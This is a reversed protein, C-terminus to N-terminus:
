RGRCRRARARVRASGGSTASGWVHSACVKWGEGVRHEPPRSAPSSGTTQHHDPPAHRQPRDHRHRHRVQSTPAIENIRSCRFAVCCTRTNLLDTVNHRTISHFRGLSSCQPAGSFWVLERRTVAMVSSVIIYPTGCSVRERAVLGDWCRRRQSHSNGLTVHGRLLARGNAAIM